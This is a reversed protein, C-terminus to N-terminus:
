LCALRDCLVLKNLGALYTSNPLLAGKQIFTSNIQPETNDAHRKCLHCQFDSFDVIVLSSNSANGYYPAGQNVLNSLTLNNENQAFVIFNTNQITVLPSFFSAIVTDLVLIMCAFFVCVFLIQIDRKTSKKLVDIDYCFLYRLQIIKM